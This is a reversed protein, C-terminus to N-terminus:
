EPIMDQLHEPDQQCHWLTTIVVNNVDIFYVIKYIKNIVLSRFNEPRHSLLSEIIGSQPFDALLIEGAKLKQQLKRKAIKGFHLETYNIAEKVQQYAIPLWIVNM